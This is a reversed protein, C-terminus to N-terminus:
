WTTSADPDASLSVEAVSRWQHGSFLLHDLLMVDADLCEVRLGEYRAVDAATPALRDDDVFTVLVLEEASMEEAVAVFAEATNATPDQCVTCPCNFAAGCLHMSSDIGLLLQGETHEDCVLHKIIEVVDNPGRVTPMQWRESRSYKRKAM